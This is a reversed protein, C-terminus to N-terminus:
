SAVPKSNHAAIFYAAQKQESTSVSSVVEPQLPSEGVEGVDGVVGVGV